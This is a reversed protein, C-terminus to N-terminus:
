KGAQASTSYHQMVTRDKWVGEELLAAPVHFQAQAEVPKETVIKLVDDYAIRYLLGGKDLMRAIMFKEYTKYIYLNAPRAKGEADRWTVTYRTNEKFATKDM